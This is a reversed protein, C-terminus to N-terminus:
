LVVSLAFNDDSISYLSIIDGEITTIDGQVTTINSEATNIDGQATIMDAQLTAVDAQLDAIDNVFPVTPTASFIPSWASIRNRDSSVIRFRMFVDTEGAILSPLENAPIIVRKTM